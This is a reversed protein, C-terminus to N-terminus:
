EHTGGQIPRASRDIVHQQKQKHQPAQKATGTQQRQWRCVLITKVIVHQTKKHQPTGKKRRGQQQRKAASASSCGPDSQHRRQDTGESPEQRAAQLPGVVHFVKAVRSSFLCASNNTKNQKQRPTPDPAYPLYSTTSANFSNFGRAYCLLGALTPRDYRCRPTCCTRM